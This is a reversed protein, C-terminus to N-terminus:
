TYKEDLVAKWELLLDTVEANGKANETLGMKEVEVMALYKVIDAKENGERVLGFVQPLYSHYEDRARPEDSAGIPDWVYHLVEDVRQYLESDKPSLKQRM